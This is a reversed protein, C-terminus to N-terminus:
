LINDPNTIDNLLAEDSILRRRKSYERESERDREIERERKLDLVAEVIYGSEHLGNVGVEVEHARRSRNRGFSGSPGEM